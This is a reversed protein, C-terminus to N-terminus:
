LAAGQGDDGRLPQPCQQLHDTPAAVPHDTWGDAILGDDIVVNFRDLVQRGPPGVLLIATM